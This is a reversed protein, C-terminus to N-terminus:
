EVDSGRVQSATGGSAQLETAVVRAGSVARGAPDTVVGTLKAPAQAFVGDGVFTEVICSLSLLLFVVPLYRKM